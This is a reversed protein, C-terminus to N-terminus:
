VGNILLMVKPLNSLKGPSYNRMQLIYIIITDGTSDKVLNKYSKFKTLVRLARIGSGLVHYIRVHTLNDHVNKCEM